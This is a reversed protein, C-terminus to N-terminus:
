RGAAKRAQLLHRRDHAAIIRFASYANYHLNAFPSKMRQQDISKGAAARLLEILENHLHEFQQLVPEPGASELPQATKPAKMKILAPPELSWALLRGTFDMKYVPTAQSSQRAAGVAQRIGPLMAEMSLNLHVVCELASWSGPSPRSRLTEEDNYTLLNRAEEMAHRSDRVLSELQVSALQPQTSSM